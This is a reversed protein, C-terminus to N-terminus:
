SPSACSDRLESLMGHLWEASTKQEGDPMRVRYPRGSSESRTAALRIFDEPTSVQDRFYQYKREIHRAARAGRYERGNRIFIADSARVRELLEEIAAGTETAACDATAPVTWLLLPILLLAIRLM